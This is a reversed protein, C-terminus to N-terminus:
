HVLDTTDFHLTTSEDCEQCVLRAVRLRRGGEERSSEGQPELIGGCGCWTRRLHEDIEDFSRVWIATDPTAGPRSAAARRQRNRRQRRLGMAVLAAAVALVFLVATM